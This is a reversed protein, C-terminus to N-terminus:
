KVRDSLPLLWEHANTFNTAVQGAFYWGPDAALHIEVTWTYDYFNLELGQRGPNM